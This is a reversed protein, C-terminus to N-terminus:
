IKIIKYIEPKVAKIDSNKFKEIFGDVDVDQPFMGFHTPVVVKPQIQLTLLCAEEVNMNNGVGNICVFMIDPDPLIPPYLNEKLLTDGTFYYNKGEHEIIFGITEIDSHFACTATINFDDMKINSAEKMTIYKNHEIFNEIKIYSSTPGALIIRPNFRVITEVTEPDTHDLHSHTFLLLGYRGKLFGDDVPMIREYEPKIKAVSNSFYPDIIISTKRGRLVFGSQGIWFIDM